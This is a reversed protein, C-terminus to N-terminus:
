WINIGDWHAIYRSFNGFFVFQILINLKSGTMYSSEHTNVESRDRVPVRDSTSSSLRSDWRRRHFDAHMPAVRHCSRSASSLDSSRNVDFLLRTAWMSLSSVSSVAVKSVFVISSYSLSRASWCSSGTPGTKSTPSTSVFSCIWARPATVVSSWRTAPSIWTSSCGRLKSFESEPNLSEGGSSPSSVSAVSRSM